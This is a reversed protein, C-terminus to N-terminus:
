FDMGFRLGYRRPPEMASGSVSGAGLQYSAAISRDTLNLVYADLSWNADGPLLTVAFDATFDSGKRGGPVYNFGLERAGRYRGDLSGIVTFDGVSVTQQIGLTATIKPANLADNGSCDVTFGRELGPETERTIDFPITSDGDFLVQTTDCTTVPTLFNPPDIGADSLDVQSFSYNDYTADLYQISGRIMTTDTAAFQFDVEAGEISSDGVNRTYFANNGRTDLGLAALQQNKYKWSFVELNVQLRDDMFRNKSGLTWAKITEPSYSERGFALNFGGARFGTEFSAYLLSDEGVDYEVGARYTVKDDSAKANTSNPTIALIAGPGFQEPAFVNFPGIPRAGPIPQGNEDLPSPGPFTSRPIQALSEALTVAVPFTPVFPCAPPRGEAEELCVLASAFANADMSRKEDTYRIGAVVRFEDTVSYTGRAFFAYSEVESDFNNSGLTGFQNFSNVGKVNEDFYFAGLIWDLTDNGGSLRAEISSQKAEDQNIAAKFPPGNFQNDLESNRYAPIITLDAFGLDFNLEANIGWYTDDREPYAFGVWPSFVPASAVNNALYDLTEPTHLGEFNGAVGDPTPIFQWNPVPLDPSFPRFGYNGNIRVGPGTGTQTSYDGAVRYNFTDSPESYFQARFAIDDAQSTGDKFFGDNKSVIGSLRVASNDSVAFNGTATVDYASFNGGGIRIKGSNEGIVPTNPIVNIAGGTSNRGYLTGQPGKLVEVRNLDLFSAITSSPRGVYVGDINFAIAPNTYGNNTFNGVGRVFYATNAGGGSLVTLAPAIKNLGEANVIGLRELSEGTAANIPIATDQLTEAKRQATVVIEEITGGTSQDSQALAQQSLVAAMVCLLSKTLQM